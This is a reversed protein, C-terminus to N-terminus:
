SCKLVLEPPALSSVPLGSTADLEMEMEMKFNLIQASQYNVPQDCVDVRTKVRVNKIGWGSKFVKFKM